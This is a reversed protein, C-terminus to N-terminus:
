KYTYLSIFHEKFRDHRESIKVLCDTAEHKSLFLQKKMVFDDMDHSVMYKDDANQQEQGQLYVKSDLLEISESTYTAQCAPKHRGQHFGQVFTNKKKHGHHCRM